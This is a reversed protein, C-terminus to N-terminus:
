GPMISVDRREGREFARGTSKRRTYMYVEVAWRITMTTDACEARMVNEYWGGGEGGKIGRTYAAYHRRKYSLSVNHRVNLTVVVFEGAYVRAHCSITIMTDDPRDRKRNSNSEIPRDAANKKKKETKVISKM